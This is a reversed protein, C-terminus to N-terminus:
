FGAKQMVRGFFGRLQANVYPDNKKLIENYKISHNTEYVGSDTDIVLEMGDGYRDTRFRGFQVLDKLWQAKLNEESVSSITQAIFQKQKDATMSTFSPNERAARTGIRNKLNSVYIQPIPLKLSEIAKQNSYADVYAEIVKPEVMGQQFILKSNGSNVIGFNKNFVTDFAQKAAESSSIQGNSSVMLRKAELMTLDALGESFALNQSPGRVNATAGLVPAIYGSISEKLSKEEHEFSTKFSENIVKKSQLSDSLTAQAEPNIAKSIVVFEKPLTNDESLADTIAAGAYDGYMQRLQSIGSTGLAKNTPAKLIASVNQAESKSITRTSDVQLQKQTATLRDFYEQKSAPDLRPDLAQKRLEELGPNRALIYGVPDENREKLDRSLFMQFHTQWKERQKYNLVQDSGTELAYPHEKVMRDINAEFDSMMKRGLEPLGSTPTSGLELFRKGFQESNDMDNLMEFSQDPKLLSNSLIERRLKKGFNITDQDLTKGSMAYKTYNDVRSALTSLNIGDRAKRKVNLMDRLKDYTDADLLDAVRKDALVSLGEGYREQFAFGNVMNIIVDQNEKLLKAKVKPDYLDQSSNIHNVITEIDAIASDANPRELQRRGIQNRWADVRGVAAEAKRINADSIAETVSQDFMKSSETKWLDSQLLNDASSGLEERIQDARNKFEESYGSGDPYKSTLDIKLNELEERYKMKKDFVFDEAQVKTRRELLNTAFKGVNEVLGQTAQNLATQGAISPAPASPGEERVFGFSNLKPIEPM